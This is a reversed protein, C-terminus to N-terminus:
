SGVYETPYDTNNADQGYTRTLNAGTAGGNVTTNFSTFDAAPIVVCYRVGGNPNQFVLQVNGSAMKTAIVTVGPINIAM